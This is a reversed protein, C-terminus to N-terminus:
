TACACRRQGVDLSQQRLSRGYRVLGSGCASNGVVDTIDRERVTPPKSDGHERVAALCGHRVPIPCNGLDGAQQEVIEVQSRHRLLLHIFREPACARGTRGLWRLSVSWDIVRLVYSDRPPAVWGLINGQQHICILVLLLGM